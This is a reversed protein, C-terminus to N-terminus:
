KYFQLPDQQYARKLHGLQSEHKVGCCGTRAKHLTHQDYIAVFLLVVVAKFGICRQKRKKTCATFLLFLLTGMLHTYRYSSIQYLVPWMFHKLDNSGNSVVRLVTGYRQICVCVCVIITFNIHSFSNYPPTYQNMKKEKRLAKVLGGSTVIKFKVFLMQM